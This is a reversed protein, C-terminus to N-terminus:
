RPDSGGLSHCRWRVHGSLHRLLRGGTWGVGLGSRYLNSVYLGPTRCRGRSGGPSSQLGMASPLGAHSRLGTGLRDPSDASGIRSSITRCSSPDPWFAQPMNPISIGLDDRECWKRIKRSLPTIIESPWPVMKIFRSLRSSISALKGPRRSLM